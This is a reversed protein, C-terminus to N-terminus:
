DSLRILSKTVRHVTAWLAGRNMPNELWSYQLSYSNGERPSRGSGSIWDPDEANCAPEEGDSGGPFSRLISYAHGFVYIFLFLNIFLIFIIKFSILSLIGLWVWGWSIEDSLLYSNLSRYTLLTWWLEWLHSKGPQGTTLVEGELAPPTPKIGPWPAWIGSAESSFVLVYVLLWTVRCYVAKRSDDRLLIEELPKNKERWQGEQPCMQPRSYLFAEPIPRPHPPPPM